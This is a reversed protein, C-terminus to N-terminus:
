KGVTDMINGFEACDNKVIAPASRAVVELYRKADVEFEPSGVMAVASTFQTEKYKGDVGVETRYVGSFTRARPVAKAFADARAAIRAPDPDVKECSVKLAHLHQLSLLRIPPVTKGDKGKPLQEAPPNLMLEHLAMRDSMSSDFHACLRAIEAPKAKAFKATFPALDATSPGEKEVSAIQQSFKALEGSDGSQIKGMMDVSKRMMRVFQNKYRDLAASRAPTVGCRPALAAFYFYSGIAPDVQAGSPAAQLPSAVATAALLMFLTLRRMLPNANKM